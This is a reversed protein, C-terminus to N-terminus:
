KGEQTPAARNIAHTALKIYHSETAQPEDRMRVLTKILETITAQLKAERATSRNIAATAEELQRAQETITAQLALADEAEVLEGSDNYDRIMCGDTNYDERYLNFRRLESM